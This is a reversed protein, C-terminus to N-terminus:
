MNITFLICTYERLGTRQSSCSANLLSLTLSLNKRLHESSREEEWRAAPRGNVM